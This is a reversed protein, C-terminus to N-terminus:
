RGASAVANVWADVHDLYADGDAGLDVELQLQREEWGLSKALFRPGDKPHYTNYLIIGKKGELRQVVERLHSATPPIGPLPEVYALIPVDLLGALYNGDKHYFVVGPAGSAEEKWAPVRAAAAATFAEANSRYREANKADLAALRGALAQAVQAMREPDMYYHPNGAPHVDGRSRDPTEGVEILEIQAAGEFYGPQGPLIKGNNAGRLAAPLWGVELDAGVALLLDARRLAVMMSPRALLFHADRDPPSLVTIKVADDGVTRALMGMSSTTAVVRVAAPSPVAALATAGVVAGTTLLTRIM